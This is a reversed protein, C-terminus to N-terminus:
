RGPSRDPITDPIRDPITDLWVYVGWFLWVFSVGVHRAHGLTRLRPLWQPSAWISLTASLRPGTDDALRSRTQRIAEMAEASMTTKRVM